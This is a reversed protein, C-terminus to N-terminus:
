MGGKMGIQSIRFIPLFMSAVLIGIVAGMFIIMIPELSAAFRALGETVREEYYKEIKDLMNTLAGSEEGVAVMQSVMPPFVGSAELPGAISKGGRVSTSVVELARRMVDNGITKSVIEISVLIPVGAKILMGFSAAFRQTLIDRVFGSFFPANFLFKDLRSRGNPTKIYIRALYVVALLAAFFYLAYHRIADTINVVVVTILPLDVKFNKFIGMFVPLIRFIFIGIAFAAVGALIVPYILATAIKKQMAARAELFTALQNLVAPLQGSAEGTEVLYVWLNSFVKPHRSLANSFTKGAKIDEKIREIASFLPGASVQASLIDLGKLLTVGAELLIALQRAFLSLDEVKLRARFRRAKTRAKPLPIASRDAGAVSIVILGSNQLQSIAEDEGPADIAGGTLRGQADRATYIYTPM